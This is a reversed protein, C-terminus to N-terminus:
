NRNSYDNYKHTRILKPVVHFFIHYIWWIPLAVFFGLILLALWLMHQSYFSISHWWPTALGIYEFVAVVIGIIIVGELIRVKNM